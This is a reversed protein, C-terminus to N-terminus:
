ADWSFRCVEVKSSWRLLWPVTAIAYIEQELRLQLLFCSPEQRLLRWERVGSYRYAPMALRVLCLSTGPVFKHGRTGCAPEGPSIGRRVERHEPRAKRRSEGAGGAARGSSRGGDAGAHRGCGSGRASRRGDNHPHRRRGRCGRRCTRRRCVTELVRLVNVPCDPSAQMTDASRVAYGDMGSRAFPPWDTTANLSEALRRGGAQWLAISEQLGPKVSEVVLQIAQEVKIARRNFRSAGQLQQM